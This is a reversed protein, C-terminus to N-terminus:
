TIILGAGVGFVVMLLVIASYFQFPKSNQQLKRVTLVMTHAILFILGFSVLNGICVLVLNADLQSKAICQLTLLLLLIGVGAVFVALSLLAILALILLTRLTIGDITKIVKIRHSSQACCKYQRDERM